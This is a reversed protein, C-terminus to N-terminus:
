SGPQWRRLAVIANHGGFGLNGNLAVELEADVAKNPTYDLDCAPDAEEYNITPAIKQDRLSLACAATEIGGAAGLLHGTMSKTSSVRMKYAHDGFVTKLAETESKDNYQTSTGHANYYDVEDPTLGADDLVLRFAEALGAGGPAPATIHYADNTASYGIIEAIIDAGRAQAHELTEMIVIGAGEGMVFGDRDKEFPRSSRAPEDNFHTSMAKMSCFGAFGLRTVAAECGGAIMVDARGAQLYRLSEGIAHTATSCASVVCYNPGKAGYEISIVGGAMNAILSPIMFPSVRRPGRELLNGCQIEITELGGIGSGVLVGFRYPDLDETKLGSNTIAERTAGVALHVFRDNRNVEKKDMFDEAAFGHVESAVKCPYNSADFRTVPGIGSQGALLHEWFKETTKGVSSLVGIGTIVVRQSPLQKAM